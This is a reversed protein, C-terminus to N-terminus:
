SVEPTEKEDEVEDVEVAEVEDVEVAEVENEEDKDTEDEDGTKSKEDDVGSEAEDSDVADDATPADAVFEQEDSARILSELKSNMEETQEPTLDQLLDAHAEVAHAMAMDMVEEKTVATAVYDCDMGMDKCEFMM